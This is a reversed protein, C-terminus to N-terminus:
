VFAHELQNHDIIPRYENLDYIDCENKNQTLLKFDPYNIRRIKKVFLYKDGFSDRKIKGIVEVPRNSLKLLKKKLHPAEMPIDEENITFLSFNIPRDKEDWESPTLVGYFTKCMSKSEKFLPIKFDLPRM